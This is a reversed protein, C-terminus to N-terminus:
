NSALTGKGARARLVAKKMQGFADRRAEAACSETQLLAPAADGCVKNVAQVIRTRLTEVGAESRLDLDAYSVRFEATEIDNDAASAHGTFGAILAAAALLRYTKM